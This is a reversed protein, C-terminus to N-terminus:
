VVILRASPDLRELDAPDSTVIPEGHRRPACYSTPTPSTAPEPPPSSSASARPTRDTSHCSPPRRSACSARSGQRGRRVVSPRRSRPRLSRRAPELEAARAILAIVASRGQRACDARRCRLDRREHWRKRAGASRAVGLIEDAWAREKATLPGGTEELASDLMVGWGAVDNLSVAVAHQIFGSVTRAKGVRRAGSRTRRSEDLTITIKKTAMGIAM